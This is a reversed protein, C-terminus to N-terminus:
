QSESDRSDISLCRACFLQDQVREIGAPGLCGGDVYRGAQCESDAVVHQLMASHDYVLGIDGPDYGQQCEGYLNQILLMVCVPLPRRRDQGSNHPGALVANIHGYLNHRITHPALGHDGQGYQVIFEYLSPFIDVDGCGANNNLQGPIHVPLHLICGHNFQYWRCNPHENWNRGGGIGALLFSRLLDCVVKPRSGSRRQWTELTAPNFFKHTNCMLATVIDGDTITFEDLPLQAFDVAVVSSSSASAAVASASSSSSTSSSSVSAATASSSSPSSAALAPLCPSRSRTSSRYIARVPAPELDCEESPHMYAFRIRRSSRVPASM